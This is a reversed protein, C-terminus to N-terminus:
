WLADLALLFGVSHLRLSTEGPAMRSSAAAASSSAAATRPRERYRYKSSLERDARAPAFGVDGERLAGQAREADRRGFFAGNELRMRWRILFVVGGPWLFVYVGWGSLGCSAHFM